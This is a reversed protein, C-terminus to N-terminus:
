GLIDHDVGPFAVIPLTFPGVVKGKAAGPRVLSDPGLEYFAHCNPESSPRRQANTVDFSAAMAFTLVVATMRHPPDTKM